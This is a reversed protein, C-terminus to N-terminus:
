RGKWAFPKSHKEGPRIHKHKCADPQSERKSGASDRLTERTHELSIAIYWVSWRGLRIVIHHYRM